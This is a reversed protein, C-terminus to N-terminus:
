ENSMRGRVLFHITPHTVVTVLQTKLPEDFEARAPSKVALEKPDLNFGFWGASQLM